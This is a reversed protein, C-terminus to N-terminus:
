TIICLRYIRYLLYSMFILLIYDIQMHYRPLVITVSYVITLFISHLIYVSYRKWYSKLLIFGGIGLFLSLSYFIRYIINKARPHTPDFWWFYSAKKITLKLSYLPHERIFKLGERKFLNDRKIEIQFEPSRLKERLEEPMTKDINSEDHMRGTGTADFHNGRWLNYGFNSKIFVFQGHVTSNRILWPLIILVIIGFGIIIAQLMERKKKLFGTLWIFFVAVLFLIYIPDWLLAIGSNIGFLVISLAKYQNRIKEFLYVGIGLHFLYFTLPLFQTPIFIFVPHFGYICFCLLGIHKNFMERGAYYLFVGAMVSFIIQILQLLLYPSPFFKVLFALLYPYLPAQISTDQLPIRGYEDWKFGNSEVINEAIQGFEWTQPDNYNKL